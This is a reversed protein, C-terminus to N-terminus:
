NQHKCKFATSVHIICRRNGEGGRKSRYDTHFVAKRSAWGWFFFCIPENQSILVKDLLSKWYTQLLTHWPTQARNTQGAERHFLERQPVPVQSYDKRKSVFLLKSFLCSCFIKRGGKWDSMNELMLYQADVRTVCWCAHMICIGRPYIYSIVPEQCLGSIISILKSHSSEMKNAKSM